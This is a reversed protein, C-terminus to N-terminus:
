AIIKKGQVHVQVQVFGCFPGHQNNILLVYYFLILCQRSIIEVFIHQRKNGFSQFGFVHMMMCTDRTSEKKLM